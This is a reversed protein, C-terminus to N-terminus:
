FVKFLTHHTHRLVACDCLCLDFRPLLIDLSKEQRGIAKYLTLAFSKLKEANMHMAMERRIVCVFLRMCACRVPVLYKSNFGTRLFRYFSEFAGAGACISSSLAILM